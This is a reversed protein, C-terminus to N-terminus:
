GAPLCPSSPAFQNAIVRALMWCCLLLEYSVLCVHLIPRREELEGDQDSTMNNHSRPPETRTTVHSLLLGTNEAIGHDGLAASATGPASPVTSPSSSSSSSPSEPGAATGADAAANSLPTKAAEFGLVM